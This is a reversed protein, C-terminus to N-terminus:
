SNKAGCRQDRRQQQRRASEGLLEAMQGALVNEAILDGHRQFPRDVGITRRFQQLARCLRRHVIQKRIRLAATRFFRGAVAAVDDIREFAAHDARHRIDGIRRDIRAFRLRLCGAFRCRSCRFVRFAFLGFRFGGGLVAVIIAINIRRYPHTREDTGSLRRLNQHRM